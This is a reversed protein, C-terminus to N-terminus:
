AGPALLNVPSAQEGGLWGELAELWPSTTPPSPLPWWGGAPAVRLPWGCRGGAAAVRLPWGCRGGAAAVRLPWGPIGLHCGGALRGKKCSPGWVAPAVQLPPLSLGWGSLAAGERFLAGRQM